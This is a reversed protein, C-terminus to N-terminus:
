WVGARVLGVNSGKCIPALAVLVLRQDVIEEAYKISTRWARLCVCARERRRKAQKSAGTKM